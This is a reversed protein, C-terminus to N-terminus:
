WQVIEVKSKVISLQNIPKRIDYCILGIRIEYYFPVYIVIDHVYHSEISSSTM